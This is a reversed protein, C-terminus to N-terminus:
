QGEEACSSLDKGLNATQDGTSMHGWPEASAASLDRPSQHLSYM